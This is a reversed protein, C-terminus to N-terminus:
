CQNCAKCDWRSPQGRYRDLSRPKILKGDDLLCNSAKVFFVFALDPHNEWIHPTFSIELVEHAFKQGIEGFHYPAPLMGFTAVSGNVSPECSLKVIQHMSLSSEDVRISCHRSKIPAEIGFESCEALPLAQPGYSLIKVDGKRM